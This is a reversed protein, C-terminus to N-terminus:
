QFTVINEIEIEADEQQIHWNKGLELYDEPSIQIQNNFIVKARNDDTNSEKDFQKLFPVYNEIIHKEAFIIPFFSTESTVIAGVNNCLHERGSPFVDLKISYIFYWFTKM